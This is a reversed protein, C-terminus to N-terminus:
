GLMIDSLYDVNMSTCLNLALMYINKPITFHIAGRKDERIRLNNM